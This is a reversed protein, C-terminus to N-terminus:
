PLRRLRTARHSMSSSPAVALHGTELAPVPPLGSDELIRHEDLPEHALMAKVLTSSSGLVGPDILRSAGEHSPAASVMEEAEVTAGLRSRWRYLSQSSFRWEGRSRALIFFAASNGSVRPL